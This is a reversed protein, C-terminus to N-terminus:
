QNGTNKIIEKSREDKIKEIKQNIHEITQQIEKTIQPQQKLLEELRKPDPQQPNYSM